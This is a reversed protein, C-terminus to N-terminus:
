SWRWQNKQIKEEISTFHTKMLEVVNPTYTYHIKKPRTHTYGDINWFSFNETIAIKMNNDRPRYCVTAIRNM